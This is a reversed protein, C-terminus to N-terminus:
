RPNFCFLVDTFEKKYVFSYVQSFIDNPSKTQWKESQTM